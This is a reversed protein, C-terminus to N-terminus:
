LSGFPYFKVNDDRVLAVYMPRRDRLFKCLDDKDPLLHTASTKGIKLKRAFSTHFDHKDDM